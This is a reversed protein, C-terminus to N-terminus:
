STEKECSEVAQSVAFNVLGPSHMIKVVVENSDRNNFCDALPLLKLYLEM